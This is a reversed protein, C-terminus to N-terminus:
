EIWAKMNAQYLGTDIFSPRRPRKVKKGNVNKYRPNKFRNSVGDLAAQTPVGSIGLKEIESSSLFHKFDQEIFTEASAFPSGGTPAGMLLSELAGVVSEEMSGAIAQKHSEFYAGMVGYKQELIMAVEHTTTSEEKYPIDIIGLHLKTM